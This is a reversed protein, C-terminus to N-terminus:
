MITMKRQRGTHLMLSVETAAVFIRLAGGGRDYTMARLNDKAARATRTHLGYGRATKGINM